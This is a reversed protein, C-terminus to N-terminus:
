PTPPAPLIATVSSLLASLPSPSPKQQGSDHSLRSASLWTSKSPRLSTLAEAWSQRAGGAEEELQAQSGGPAHGKSRQNMATDWAGTVHSVWLLYEVLQETKLKKNQIPIYGGPSGQHYLFQRGHALGQNLGQTRLTPFIRQLLSLSGVGTNQDPSEM